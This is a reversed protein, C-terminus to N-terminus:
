GVTVGMGDPTGWRSGFEASEKGGLERRWIEMRRLRWEEREGGSIGM